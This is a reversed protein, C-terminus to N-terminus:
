DYVRIWVREIRGGNRAGARSLQVFVVWHLSEKAVPFFCVWDYPAFSEEDGVVFGCVGCEVEWVFDETETPLFSRPNTPTRNYRHM